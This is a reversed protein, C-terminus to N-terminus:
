LGAVTSVCSKSIFTLTPLAVCTSSQRLASWCLHRCMLNVNFNREALM